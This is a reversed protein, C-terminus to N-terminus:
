RDPAGATEPRPVTESVERAGQERKIQAAQGMYGHMMVVNGKGGLKDAIFKMAMRAPSWMM